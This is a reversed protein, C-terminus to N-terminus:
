PLKLTEEKRLVGGEPPQVVLRVPEADSAVQLTLALPEGGWPLDLLACLGARDSKTTRGAGKVVVGERPREQGDVLLLDLRWGSELVLRVENSSPDDGAWEIRVAVRGDPAAQESPARAAPLLVRFNVDGAPVRLMFGGDSGTRTTVEAQSGDAGGAAPVAIITVAEIPSGDSARVAVGGIDRFGAPPAADLPAVPEAPVAAPEHPTAQRAELPTSADGGAAPAVVAPLATDPAERRTLLWVAAFVLVLGTILVSARHM